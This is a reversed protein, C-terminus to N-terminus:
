FADVSANEPTRSLESLSSGGDPAMAMAMFVPTLNQREPRKKVRKPSPQEEEDGEEDEDDEEGEANDQQFKEGEGDNDDAEVSGASNANSGTAINDEDAVPDSLDLHMAARDDERTAPSLSKMTQPAAKRTQTKAKSATKPKTEAAVTVKMKAGSKVAPQKAVAGGAGRGGRKVGAAEELRGARLTVAEGETDWDDSEDEDGAGATEDVVPAMMSMRVRIKKNMRVFPCWKAHRDVKRKLKALTLRGGAEISSGGSSSSDDSDGLDLEKAPAKRKATR